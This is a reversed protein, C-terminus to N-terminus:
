HREKQTIFFFGITSIQSDSRHSLIEQPFPIPGIQYQYIQIFWVRHAFFIDVIFTVPRREFSFRETGANGMGNNGAMHSKFVTAEIFAFGTFSHHKLPLHLNFM